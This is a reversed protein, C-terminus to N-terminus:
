KYLVREAAPPLFDPVYIDNMAPKKPLDFAQSVTDIQAQLRGPDVDALASQQVRPTAIHYRIIWELRETELGVRVLPDAAPLTAAAAKPDRVAQRWAEAVLGVVKRVAARDRRLFPLSVILAQGYLDLGYDSYNMFNLDDQKIGQSKLNFWISADFGAAAEYEGRMLLAERLRIEGLRVEVSKVDVGAARAFVPFLSITAEGPAGGVRKGALDQPRQIGSKKFSVLAYQASDQIVLVAPPAAEPHKADFEVVSGVDALGFDYTGSAVRNLVDGSGAAPDITVDFGAAKFLGVQKAYIYPAASGDLVYSLSFRLPALEEAGVRAPMGALVLIAVFAALRTRAPEASVASSAASRAISASPRRKSRSNGRWNAFYVDLFPMRRM